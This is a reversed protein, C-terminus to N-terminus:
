VSALIRRCKSCGRLRFPLIHRMLLLMKIHLIIKSKLSNFIKFNKSAASQGNNKIQKKLAMNRGVRGASM